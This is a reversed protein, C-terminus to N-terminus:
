DLLMRGVVRGTGIRVGALDDLAAAARVVRRGGRPTDLTAFENAVTTHLRMLPQLDGLVVRDFGFLLRGDVVLTRGTGVLTEHTVNMRQLLQRQEALRAVLQRTAVALQDVMPIVLVLKRVLNRRFSPGAQARQQALDGVLSHQQVAGHLHDVIALIQNGVLLLLQDLLDRLHHHLDGVRDVHAALMQHQSQVLHTKCM